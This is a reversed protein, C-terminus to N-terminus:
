RQERRRPATILIARERENSIKQLLEAVTRTDLSLFPEDLLLTSSNRALTITWALRQREGGSLSNVVRNKALPVSLDPCDFLQLNEGVTLSEFLTGRPRLLAV